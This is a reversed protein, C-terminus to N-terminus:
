SRPGSAPAETPESRGAPGRPATAASPRIAVNRRRIRIAPGPRDCGLWGFCGFCDFGGFACFTADGGRIFSAGSAAALGSLAGFSFTGRAGRAGLPGPRRIRQPRTSVRPSVRPTMAATRTERGGFTRPFRWPTAPLTASAAPLTALLTLAVILSFSADDCDGSSCRAVKSTGGSLAYAAAKSDCAGYGVACGFLVTSHTMASRLVPDAPQYRPISPAWAEIASASPVLAATCLVCYTPGPWTPQNTTCKGAGVCGPTVRTGSRGRMSPRPMSGSRPM